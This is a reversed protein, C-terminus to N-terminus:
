LQNRWYPSLPRDPGLVFSRLEPPTLVLVVHEPFDWELREFEEVFERTRFHNFAAISVFTESAKPGQCYNEVQVLAPFDRASLWVNLKTLNVPPGDEGDTEEAVSCIVVCNTVKSM